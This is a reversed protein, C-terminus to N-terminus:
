RKNVAKKKQSDDADKGIGALLQEKRSYDLMGLDSYIVSLSNHAELLDEEIELVKNYEFIAERYERKIFFVKALLIRASLYDYNLELAKRLDAEADNLSKESEGSALSIKARWYFAVDYYPYKKLLNDCIVSADNFRSLFYYSKLEMIKASLLSDDCEYAKSFNEAASTLNNNLYESRGKDFFAKAEKTNQSCGMFTILM